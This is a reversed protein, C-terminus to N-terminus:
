QDVDVEACCKLIDLQEPVFHLCEDLVLFIRSVELWVDVDLDSTNGLHILHLQLDLDSMFRIPRVFCHSSSPPRFEHTREDEGKSLYGNIRRTSTTSCESTGILRGVGNSDRIGLRSSGSICEGLSFLLLAQECSM